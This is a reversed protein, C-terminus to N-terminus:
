IGKVLHRYVKSLPLPIEARRMESPIMQTHRHPQSMGTTLIMYLYTIAQYRAAHYM